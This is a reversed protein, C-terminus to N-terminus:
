QEERLIATRDGRNTRLILPVQHRSRNVLATASPEGDAVGGPSGVGLHSSRQRM